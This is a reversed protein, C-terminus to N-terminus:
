APRPRSVTAPYLRAMLERRVRRMAHLVTNALDPRLKLNLVCWYLYTPEVRRVQEVTWGKYKGFDFVKGEVRELEKRLVSWDDM